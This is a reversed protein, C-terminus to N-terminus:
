QTCHSSSKSFILLHVYPYCFFCNNERAIRVHTPTCVSVWARVRACKTQREWVNVRVCVCVCLHYFITTGICKSAQGKQAWTKISNTGGPTDDRSRFVDARTFLHAAGTLAISLECRESGRPCIKSQRCIGRFKRSGLRYVSEKGLSQYTKGGSMPQHTGLM